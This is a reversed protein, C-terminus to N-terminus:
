LGACRSTHLGSSFIAARHMLLFSACRSHRHAESENYAMLKIGNYSILTSDSDMFLSATSSKTAQSLKKIYGRYSAARTKDSHGPTAYINIGYGCYLDPELNRSPCWLVTKRGIPRYNKGYNSSIKLEPLMLDLWCPAVSDDSHYAYFISDNYDATYVQFAYGLQKLNGMCSSSRASERARSLAPLLLAALIAIISVVVLLEILTFSKGRYM